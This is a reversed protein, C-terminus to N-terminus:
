FCPALPAPRRGPASTHSGAHQRAPTSATCVSHTNSFTTQQLFYTPCPALHRRVSYNCFMLTHMECPHYALQVCRVNECSWLGLQVGSHGPRSGAGDTRGWFLILAPPSPPAAAQSGPTPPQRAPALIHCAGGRVDLLRSTDLMVTLYAPAYSLYLSM